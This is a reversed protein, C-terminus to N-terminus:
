REGFKSSELLTGTGLLRARYSHFSLSTHLDISWPIFLSVVLIHALEGM